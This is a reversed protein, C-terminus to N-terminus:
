EAGTEGCCWFKEIKIGRLLGPTQKQKEIHMEINSVLRTRYKLAGIMGLCTVCIKIKKNQGVVYIYRDLLLHTKIKIRIAISLVFGLRHTILTNEEKEIRKNTFQIILKCVIDRMM